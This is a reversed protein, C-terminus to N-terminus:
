AALANQRVGLQNPPHSPRLTVRHCRYVYDGFIARMQQLRQQHRETAAALTDGSFVAVVLEWGYKLKEFEGELVQVMFVGAMRVAQFEEQLFTGVKWGVVGSALVAFGVKLKGAALAGSMSLNATAWAASTSAAATVAATGALEWATILAPILRYILVALGVEAILKLWQIVM